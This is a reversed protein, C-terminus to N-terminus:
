ILHFYITDNLLKTRLSNVGVHQILLEADGEHTNTFFWCQYRTAISSYNYCLMEYNVFILLFLM